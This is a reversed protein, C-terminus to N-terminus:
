KGAEAIKKYMAEALKEATAIDPSEHVGALYPGGTFIVEYAGFLEVCKVGPINTTLKTETADNTILFRYYADALMQSKEENGCDSLFAKAKAQGIRYSAMFVNNLGQLGFADTAQLEISDALLNERPLIDLEAIQQTTTATQETFKRALAEVKAALSESIEAPIIELYYRGHVLFIAGGSRYAFDGMSLSEVGSRRQASFVAFANRMNGMDYVFLELWAEPNEAIDDQSFRQCGLEVFGAPLYFEAKGNIKDSLAEPGFTEAPTYIALGAPLNQRLASLSQRIPSGALVESNPKGPMQLAPNFNFQKFFIGVAIGALVLLILVGVITQTAGPQSDSNTM